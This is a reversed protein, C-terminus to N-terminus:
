SKPFTHLTILSKEQVAFSIKNKLEKFKMKSASREFFWNKLGIKVEPEWITQSAVFINLGNNM